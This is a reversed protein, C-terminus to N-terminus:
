KKFRKLLKKQRSAFSSSDGSPKKSHVKTSVSAITSAPPRPPPTPPTSSKKLARKRSKTPHVDEDDDDDDPDDDDDHQNVGGDFEVGDGTHEGCSICTLRDDLSVRSLEDGSMSLWLLVDGDSSIGATINNGYPCLDKVRSGLKQQSSIIPAREDLLPFWFVNGRETGVAISHKNAWCFSTVRDNPAFSRIAQKTSESASYVDVQAAWQVAFYEGTPSWKVGLPDDRFGRQFFPAFEGDKLPVVRYHISFSLSFSIPFFFSFFFCLGVVFCVCLDEDWRTNKEAKSLIFVLACKGTLLNWLKAKKTGTGVTLLMRGSPHLAMGLVGRTHAQFQLLCEWDKVCEPCVSEM